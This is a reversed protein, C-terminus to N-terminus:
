RRISWRRIVVPWASTYDVFFGIHERWLGLFAEQNEAGAVSGIM